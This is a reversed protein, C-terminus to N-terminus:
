ARTVRPGAPTDTVTYGAAQIEARLRDAEAFNRAKKAEARARVLAAVADDPDCGEFAVGGPAASAAQDRGTRIRDAKAILDLQLVQDFQAIAARKTADNPDYKLADYVATVALSTNLDNDLATRFKGDLAELAAGDVAGDDKKLGAVRNM